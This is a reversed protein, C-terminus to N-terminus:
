RGVLVERPKVGDAPGVIGQREMVEVINAARNYGIGLHRQIMSTSIKGKEIALEVADDYKDDMEAELEDDGDGAHSTIRADYEPSGQARLHDAIRHVENETLFPGHIRVVDSSGPRLFLLDGNGLLQEAGNQDLIVRSDLANRVRYALSAPMNAKITGTIVDRRPTQTAIILHLGAARAKQALRCISTEVDSSAVMMLDALEDIVIVIYPFKRPQPLLDGEPWDKPAYMRAKEPTWDQLEREVKQNYNDVHRTQWRAMVKYREDMENCAWKLVSSALKPETVVPHLLHPIDDYLGFELMKPDILILRLEEPTRMFLMSCLMGNVGVSKGSGTTGCILLHPMKALDTVTPRGEIDKGLIMPLTRDGTGFEQSAFVDRAWVTQRKDNPIEIGVCGRGPIPAVIRVSIAKLAMKLNDALGEIKSLKVGPAPEYEFMTIVPGPRIASVRGEVEFEKLTQTLRRALDHLKGEDTGAVIAPHDDLLSLTPLQFTAVKRLARGDDDSGGSQLNGPVVAPGGRRPRPAAAGIEPLRVPEPPVFAVRAAEEQPPDQLGTPGGESRTSAPAPRPAVSPREAAVSPREAAVSPREAAVPPREAVVSPRDDDMAGREVVVSPPEIQPAAVVRANPAAEISGARRVGPAVTLREEPARRPEAPAPPRAGPLAGSEEWEVEVLTRGGVKTPAERDPDGVAIAPAVPARRSSWVSPLEAPTPDVARSVDPAPTAADVSEEIGEEVDEVEADDEGVVMRERLASVGAGGIRVSARVAGAGAAGIGKVAAPGMQQVRDVARSALPQWDVNFLVTVVAVLGTAVGLAAGVQGVHTVLAGSVLIGVVGGPPFPRGVLGGFCLQLAAGLLVLGLAGVWTVLWGGAGRGALRLSFRVGLLAVTWSAWGFAQFLADALVAGFPGALNQIPGGGAVSLSPDGADYTALAVAAYASTAIGAIWVVQRIRTPTVAM